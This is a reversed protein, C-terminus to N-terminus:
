ALHREVYRAIPEKRASSSCSRFPCLDSFNISSFSINLDEYEIDVGLSDRSNRYGLESWMASAKALGVPRESLM